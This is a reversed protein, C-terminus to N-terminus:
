LANLLHALYLRPPKSPHLLSPSLSSHLRSYPLSEEGTPRRSLLLFPFLRTSFPVRPDCTRSTVAHDVRRRPRHSQGPSSTEGPHENQNSIIIQEGPSSLLRGDVDRARQCGNDEETLLPPFVDSHLAKVIIISVVSQARDIWVCTICVIQHNLISEPIIVERWM